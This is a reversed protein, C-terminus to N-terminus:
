LNFQTYITRMFHHVFQQLIAYHNLKLSLSQIYFQQVFIHMFNNHLM